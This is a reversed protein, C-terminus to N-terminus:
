SRTCRRRQLSTMPLFSRMIKMARVEDCLSHTKAVCAWCFTHGNAPLWRFVDCKPWGPVSFSVSLQIGMNCLRPLGRLNFQSGDATFPRLEFAEGRRALHQSFRATKIIYSIVPKLQLPWVPSRCDPLGVLTTLDPDQQRQKAQPRM